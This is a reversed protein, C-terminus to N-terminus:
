EEDELEEKNVYAIVLKEKASQNDDRQETCNFRTMSRLAHVCELLEGPTLNVTILDTMTRNREGNLM